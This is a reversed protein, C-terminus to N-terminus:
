SISSGSNREVANVTRNVGTTISALRQEMRQEFDTLQAKVEAKVNSVFLRKKLGTKASKGGFSPPLVEQLLQPLLSDKLL